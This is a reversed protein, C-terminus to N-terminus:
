SGPPLVPRKQSDRKRSNRRPRPGLANRVEYYLENCVTKSLAIDPQAGVEAFLGDDVARKPDAALIETVRSFVRGRKAKRQRASFLNTGKPHPSGFAEDWTRVRYNLAKDFGRIFGDAVWPPLILDHNACLRIAQMLAFGSGAVFEKELRAIQGLAIWRFLPLLRGECGDAEAREHAEMVQEITWDKEVVAAECSYSSM